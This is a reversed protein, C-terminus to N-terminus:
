GNGRRALFRPGLEPWPQASRGWQRPTSRSGERGLGRPKQGTGRGLPPPPTQRVSTKVKGPLGYRRPEAHCAPPAVWHRAPNLFSQRLIRSEPTQPNNGRVGSGRSHRIEEQGGKEGKRPPNFKTPRSATPPPQLRPSRNARGATGLGGRAEGTFVKEMRFGVRPTNLGARPPWTNTL